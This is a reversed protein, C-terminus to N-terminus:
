SCAKQWKTPGHELSNSQLLEDMNDRTSQEMEGDVELGSSNDSSWHRKRQGPTKVSREHGSSVLERTNASHNLLDPQSAPRDLMQTGAIVGQSMRDSTQSIDVFSPVPPNPRTSRDLPTNQMNRQQSYPITNLTFTENPASSPPPCHHSSSDLTTEQMEELNEIDPEAILPLTTPMRTIPSATLHPFAPLSPRAPAFYRSRTAHNGPEALESDMAPQGLHSTNIQEIVNFIKRRPKWNKIARHYLAEFEVAHYKNTFWPHELAQKVDMRKAEDLVLLRKVFDKARHGIGEWSGGADVIALDCRAALNLIVASPDTDYKPDTKDTFIVDGTVLAATICGISWMDVAKSYGQGEAITSNCKHIEPATYEWTGVVSFMRQNTAVKAHGSGSTDPLVRAHGFDTLVIRAGDRLSTMLINDPKLDRHVINREHLYDVAKLIQRLLVAAEIDPLKGGKYEIFSFLDGATLLESFMYIHHSTCFVKELMIINPHTLDKLIEFERALKNLRRRIRVAKDVPRAKTGFKDPAEPCTRYHLLDPDDIYKRLAIVKCALQRSSKKEIAAYVAGHGGVGLRRNMVVYRDEFLKTERRQVKEGTGAKPGSHGYTKFFLSVTPSICLEDGENLLVPCHKGNSSLDEAFILPLIGSGGDEEYIVCHIRIQRNSITPDKVGLASRRSRGAGWMLTGVLGSSGNTQLIDAIPAGVEPSQAGARSAESDKNFVTLVGVASQQEARTEQGM